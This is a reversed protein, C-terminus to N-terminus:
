PKSSPGEAKAGDGLMPKVGAHLAARALAHTAVPNALAVFVGLFLLKVTVLSLGAVIMLGVLILGVGLTDGVSAAHMRTFVDPMRFLGIAGIVMFGAGGVVLIGGLSDRILALTV